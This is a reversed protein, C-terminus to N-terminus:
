GYFVSRKRANCHMVYLFIFESIICREDSRTCTYSGRCKRDLRFSEAQVDEHAARSREVHVPSEDYIRHHHEEVSTRSARVPVPYSLASHTEMFVPVHDRNANCKALQLVHGQADGVFTNM